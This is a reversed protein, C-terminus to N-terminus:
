YSKISGPQAGAYGNKIPEFFLASELPIAPKLVVKRMKNQRLGGSITITLSFPTDEPSIGESLADM